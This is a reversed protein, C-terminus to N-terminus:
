GGHPASVAVLPPLPEEPDDTSLSGSDTRSRSFGHAVAFMTLAYFIVVPINTYLALFLQQADSLGVGAFIYGYGFFDILPVCAWGLLAILYTVRWRTGSILFVALPLLMMIRTHQFSNSSTMVIFASASFAAPFTLWRRQFAVFIIASAMLAFGLRFGTTDLAPLFSWFGFWFTSGSERAQRNSLLTFSATGASLAVSAAVALTVLFRKLRGTGEQWAALLPGFPVLGTWGAFLGTAAASALTSVSALLFIALPLWLLFAKDEYFRACLIGMFLGVVALTRATTPTLGIRAGHCGVVMLVITLPILLYAAWVLSHPAPGFLALLQYVRLSLAPFDAYTSAFQDAGVVEGARPLAGHQNFFDAFATYLRVDSGVSPLRVAFAYGLSALAAMLWLFGANSVAGVNRHRPQTGALRVVSSYRVRSHIHPSCTVDNDPSLSFRGFLRM